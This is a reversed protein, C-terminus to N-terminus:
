SRKIKAKKDDAIIWELWHILEKRRNQKVLDGVYSIGIACSIAAFLAAVAGFIETSQNMFIALVWVATCFLTLIGFGVLWWKAAPPSGLRNERDFEALLETVVVGYNPIDQRLEAAFESWRILKFPASQRWRLGHSKRLHSYIQNIKQSVYALPIGAMLIGFLYLFWSRLVYVDLLAFVSGIISTALLIPGYKIDSMTMRFLTKLMGWKCHLAKIQDVARDDFGGDLVGPDQGHLGDQYVTVHLEKTQIVTDVPGHFVSDGV